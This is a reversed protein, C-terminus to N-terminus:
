KRGQGLDGQGKFLEKRKENEQVIKFVKEPWVLIGKERRYINKCQM